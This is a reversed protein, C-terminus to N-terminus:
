AASRQDSPPSSRPRGRKRRTKVPRLALWDAITVDGDTAEEIEKLTQVRTPPRTGDLWRYVTRPNKKVRKAFAKPTIGKRKLHDGLQM